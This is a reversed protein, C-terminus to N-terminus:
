ELNNERQYVEFSTGNFLFKTPDESDLDIRLPLSLKKGRLFELSEGSYSVLPSIELILKSEDTDSSIIDAGAAQLWRYHQRMLDIRCTVENDSRENLGNKLPSFEDNRKVEWIALNRSFPFIDFIFKELKIGNKNSPKVVVGDEDVYPIKKEAIHYKLDKQHFKCVEDLFDITVFHNCINGANYTLDGTIPDRQNRLAHSIESYELVQYRNNVKCVVGVSEDPEVKKVAKAACDAEKEICFGVFLPDAIRILINDVCYAHVYKIGRRQMDEVIDSKVLAKYLGGNGDPSRSIRHKQELLIKGDRSLCPMTGQEFFIINEKNLGFYSNQEFYEIITDRTNESTMIYWTIARPPKMYGYRERAVRQIRALREAQLQFLSKNSQLKVSYMGKPYSVGLRTGQGGALLLVAVEGNSIARLGYEEYKDRQEPTSQEMSGRCESPVPAIDMEEQEEALQKSANVSSAYIERIEAFDIQEIDDLLLERENQSLDDWFQVLHEQGFPALINIMDEKRM